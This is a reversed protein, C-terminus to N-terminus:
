NREPNHPTDRRDHSPPRATPANACLAEIVALCDAEHLYGGCDALIDGAPGVLRWHWDGGSWLVSTMSVRESQYTTFCCKGSKQGSVVVTEEYKPPANIDSLPIMENYDAMNASPM